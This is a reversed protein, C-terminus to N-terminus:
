WLMEWRIQDYIWNLDLTAEFLRIFTYSYQCLYLAITLCLHANAALFHCKISRLLLWKDSFLSSLLLFCLRNLGNASARLQKLRKGCNLRSLLWFFQSCFLTEYLAGRTANGFSSNILPLLVYWAKCYHAFSLAHPNNLSLFSIYIMSFFPSVTWLTHLSFANVNSM